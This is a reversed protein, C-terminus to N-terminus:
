AVSGDARDHPRRDRDAARPGPERLREAIGLAAITKGAGTVVKITGRRGAEFWADSAARQWPHLEVGRTDLWKENPKTAEAAEESEDSESSAEARAGVWDRLQLQHLLLRDEASLTM